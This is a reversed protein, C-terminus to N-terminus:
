SLLISYRIMSTMNTIDYGLCSFTFLIPLIMVVLFLPIVILVRGSSIDKGHAARVLSFTQYVFLHVDLLYVLLSFYLCLYWLYPM